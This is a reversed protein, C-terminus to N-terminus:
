KKETDRKALVETRLQEQTALFGKWNRRSIQDWSGDSFGVAFGEARRGSGSVGDKKEWLVAVLNTGVKDDEKFGPWYVWSSVTEDLAHGQRLTQELRKKDGSLGALLVPDDIYKPNLQQLCELPTNGSRPFWGDHEAAFKRLGILTGPLFGIRDGYPRSWRYLQSVGAVVGALLCCVLLWIILPRFRM